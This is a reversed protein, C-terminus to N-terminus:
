GASPAVREPRPAIEKWCWIPLLGARAPVMRWGGVTSAPRAHGRTSPAPSNAGSGWCLSSQGEGGQRPPSRVPARLPGQLAQPAALLVASTISRRCVTFMPPRYDRRRRGRSLPRSSRPGGRAVMGRLVAFPPGCPAPVRGFGQEDRHGSRNRGRRRAPRGGLPIGDDRAHLASIDSELRHDQRLVAGPPDNRRACDPM